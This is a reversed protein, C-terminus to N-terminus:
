KPSSEKMEELYEKSPGENTEPLALPATSAPTSYEIPPEILYSRRPQGDPGFLAATDPKNLKKNRLETPSLKKDGRGRLEEMIERQSRNRRDPSPGMYTGSHVEQISSRGPGRDEERLAETGTLKRSDRIAALEADKDRPWNAPLAEPDTPDAEPNPLAATSQPVALPARPKYDIPKQDPDVAGIGTMLRKVVAVDPADNSGEGYFGQSSQCAGLGLTAAALLALRAIYRPRFSQM